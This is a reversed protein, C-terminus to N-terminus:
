YFIVYVLSSVLFSISGIILALFKSFKNIKSKYVIFVALLLGIPLRYYTNLTIYLQCLTWVGFIELLLYEETDKKKKYAIFLFPLTLIMTILAM